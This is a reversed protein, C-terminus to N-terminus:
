NLPNKEWIKRYLNRSLMADHLEPLIRECNALLSATLQRIHMHFIPERHALRNRLRYLRNIQYDVEDRRSGPPFAKYLVPVWLSKERSTVSLFRWFDLNLNAVIRNPDKIGKARIIAKGISSRPIANIDVGDRFIPRQVPSGPDLLWHEEGKWWDSLVADYRNRLALEWEGLGKLLEAGMEHDWDVLAIARSRDGQTADLFKAFREHSLWSEHWAIDPM